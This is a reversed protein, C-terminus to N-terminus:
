SRDSARQGYNQDSGCAATFGRMASYRATLDRDTITAFM